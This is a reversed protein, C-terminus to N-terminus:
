WRERRQEVELLSLEPLASETKSGRDEHNARERCGSVQSSRNEFEDVPEEGRM